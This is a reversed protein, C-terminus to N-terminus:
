KLCAGNEHSITEMKCFTATSPRIRNDSQESLEYIGIGIIIAALIIIITDNM